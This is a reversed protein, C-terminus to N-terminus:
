ANPSLKVLCRACKRVPDGRWDKRMEPEHKECDYLEKELKYFQPWADFQDHYRRRAWGLRYGNVNAQEILEIYHDRRSVMSDDETDVLQADTEEPVTPGSNSVFVYGCEPCVPVPEDLLAYCEPCQRIPDLQPQKPAGHLDWEIEDTVRGHEHFCGAHDLVTVPGPPRMVRGVMQRYLGLSKTPRALICCQLSPLDVGEGLVMCNSVLDLRGDSLDSLIGYRENVPTTGDLHKARVGIKRFRAVLDHSHELNVTFAITRAGPTLKQWHEVINGTLEQMREALELVAYDGRRVAIGSLDVPPSFMKPKVIYGLEILENITVPEILTDFVDGLGRGDLRLPTATVGLVWSGRRQYEEVVQKWTPSVSHHCEDLILFDSDPLERRILTPISSVQVPRSLDEAYGAKIIGPEIGFRALRDRAQEVLELRHVAFQARHGAELARRIAECVVVTKGAGVPMTLVVSRHQRFANRISDLASQQYPRLDM